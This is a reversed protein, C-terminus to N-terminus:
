TKNAIKTLAKKYLALKKAEKSLKEYLEAQEEIDTTEKIQDKITDCSSECQKYAHVLQKVDVNPDSPDLKDGYTVTSKEKEDTYQPQHNPGTEVKRVVKVDSTEMMTNADNEAVIDKYAKLNREKNEYYPDDMKDIIRMDPDVPAFELVQDDEVVFADADGRLTWDMVARSSIRKATVKVKRKSSGQQLIQLWKRPADICKNDPGMVQVTDNAKIAVVEGQNFELASQWEKPAAIYVKAGLISNPSNGVDYDQYFKQLAMQGSYGCELSNSNAVDAEYDRWKQEYDSRTIGAENFVSASRRYANEMDQSRSNYIRGMSRDGGYKGRNLNQIFATVKPIAYKTGAYDKFSM